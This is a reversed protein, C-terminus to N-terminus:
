QAVLLDSKKRCLIRNQFNGLCFCVVNNCHHIQNSSAIAPALGLLWRGDQTGALWSRHTQRSVSCNGRLSLLVQVWFLSRLRRQQLHWSYPTILCTDVEFAYAINISCTYWNLQVQYTAGRGLSLFMKQQCWNLMNDTACPQHHRKISLGWAM